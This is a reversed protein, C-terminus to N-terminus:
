SATGKEIKIKYEKLFEMKKISLPTRVKSEKARKHALECLTKAIVLANQKTKEVM